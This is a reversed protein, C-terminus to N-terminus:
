IVRGSQRKGLTAFYLPLPLVLMAAFKVHTASSCSKLWVGAGLNPGHPTRRRRASHEGAGQSKRRRRWDARLLRVGCPRAHSCQRASTVSLRVAGESVALM